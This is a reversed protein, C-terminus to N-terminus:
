QSLFPSVTNRTYKNKMIKIEGGDDVKSVGKKEETTIKVPVSSEVM